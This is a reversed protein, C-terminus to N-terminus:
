VEEAIVVSTSVSIDSSLRRVRGWIGMFEIFMAMPNDEKVEPGNTSSLSVPQLTSNASMGFRLTYQILESEITLGGTVISYESYRHTILEIIKTLLLQLFFNREKEKGWFPSTEIQSYVDILRDANKINSIMDALTSWQKLYDVKDYKGM